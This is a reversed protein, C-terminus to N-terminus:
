NKSAPKPLYAEKRLLTYEFNVSASIKSFTKGDPVPWYVYSGFPRGNTSFSQTMPDYFETFEGAPVLEIRYKGPPVIWKGLESAIRNEGSFLEHRFTGDVNLQLTERHGSIKEQYLGPIDKGWNPPLSNYASCGIWAQVAILAIWGGLKRAMPM